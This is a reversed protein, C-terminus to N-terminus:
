SSIKPQRIIASRTRCFVFVHVGCLCEIWLWFVLFVFSSSYVVKQWLCRCYDNVHFKTRTSWNKTMGSIMVQYFFLKSHTLRYFSPSCLEKLSFLLSYHGPCWYFLFRWFSIKAASYVFYTLKQQIVRTVSNDNLCAFSISDWEM